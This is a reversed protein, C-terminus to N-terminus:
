AIADTTRKGAMDRSAHSSEALRRRGGTRDASRRRCARSQPQAARTRDLLMATSLISSTPNAVNKGRFDPGVWAAGTRCLHNAWM